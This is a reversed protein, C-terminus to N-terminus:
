KARLVREIEQRFDNLPRAGSILVGEIAGDPRTKGVFFGPTGQVGAALGAEYNKQVTGAHKGTDLCEGFVKADLNLDVAYSKLHEPQLAQQNRFLTDHMEWYRAQDGACHAAEAAKRAQPHISDLPFDRFVHRLKGSDIYEAKLAPLTSDVFRRCFPCQYDSFEVLTVAAQDTGLAPNGAASVQAVVRAPAAPQSPQALRQLIVERILRVETKLSEVEAKLRDLEAKLAGVDSPQQASPPQAAAASAGLAIACAFAALRRLAM